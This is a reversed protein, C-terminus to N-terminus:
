RLQRLRTSFILVLLSISIFILSLTGLAVPAGFNETGVTLPLVGLPMIGWGLMNISMVRGRYEDDINEMVLSQQMTQRGTQITGMILLILLGGSFSYVSFEREHSFFSLISFGLLVTGSLIGTLALM